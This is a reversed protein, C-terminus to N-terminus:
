GIGCGLEVNRRDTGEGVAPGSRDLVGIGEGHEVVVAIDEVREPPRVPQEV